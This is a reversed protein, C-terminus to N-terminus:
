FLSKWLKNEFLQQNNKFLITKMGLKKAPKINWTQNDIFLCAKAPLKLSKLTIKYIKPNPKRVGVNCSVIVPNFKKYLKDPMIAEKSIPWQDSLVAIKYGLQKLKFAQEFLQKNQVFHNRYAKKLIKELKDQSIKNNKAIIKLTKEKSVKGEISDSYASDISDFWQDLSIKLKKVVYEHVGLTRNNKGTKTNKGLVLVGGVDFIVAKINSKKNLIGKKM